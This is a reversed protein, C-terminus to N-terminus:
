AKVVPVTTVSSISGEIDANILDVAEKGLSVEVLDWLKNGDDDNDVVAVDDDTLILSGFLAIAVVLVVREFGAVPVLAVEVSVGAARVLVLEVLVGVARVLVMKVLVGVVRVLVVEM